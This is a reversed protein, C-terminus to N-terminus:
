NCKIKLFSNTRCLPCSYLSKICTGHFINGCGYGCYEKDTVLVDLCIACTHNNSRPKVITINKSKEKQQQEEEEEQFTEFRAEWAAEYQCYEVDKSDMSDGDPYDISSVSETDSDSM